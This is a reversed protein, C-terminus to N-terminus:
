NDWAPDYKIMLPSYFSMGIYISSNLMLMSHGGNLPGELTNKLTWVKQKINYEWIRNNSDIVYLCDNLIAGSSITGALKPIETEEKWTSIDGSSIWLTKTSTSESTQGLGAFITDNKSLVIGGYQSIPFNEIQLWEEQITNYRWVENLIANTTRGGIVYGYTVAGTSQVTAKASWRATGPFPPLAVWENLIVKFKYFETTPVGPNVLGGLLYATQDTSFATMFKRGGLPYDLRPRWFNSIPDFELVNNTYLRGEDGGVFYARNLASFAAAGSLLTNEFDAMVTFAKPTTFTVKSGYSTGISNTAFARVNYIKEPILKELYGTFVGIGPTFNLVNDQITPDNSIPDNSLSWCIGRAIVESYGMDVVTGGVKAKGDKIDAVITNEVIPLANQTTFQITNSYQIGFSNVAFSRAYYTTNTKLNKITASFKGIGTGVFVSDNNVSVSASESFCIGRATVTADGESIVESELDAEFMRVQLLKLPAISPKGSTTVFTESSGYYTGVINTVFARVYYKTLPKLSTLKCSFSDTNTISEVVSNEITPNPETGYCLGRSVIEEPGKVEIIGGSVASTANIQDPFLTAVVGLGETTVVTREQGYATGKANIAYARLYYTKNASLGKVEATFSGLGNGAPVKNVASVPSSTGWCIGKETVEAGNAQLVAGSVTITTASYSEVSSTEVEPTRANFIEGPISPDDMCSQFIFLGILFSLFLRTYLNSTTDM